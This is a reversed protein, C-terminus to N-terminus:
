DDDLDWTIMMAFRPLGRVARGNLLLGEEDVIYDVVVLHPSGDKRSTGLVTRYPGDLFPRVASVSTTTYDM